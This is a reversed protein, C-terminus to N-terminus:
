FYLTIFLSDPKHMGFNLHALRRHLWTPNREYLNYYTNKRLAPVYLFKSSAYENHFPKTIFTCFFQLTKNVILPGPKWVIKLVINTIEKQVNKDAMTIEEGEM